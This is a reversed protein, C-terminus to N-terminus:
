KRILNTRMPTQSVLMMRCRVIRLLCWVVIFAKVVPISIRVRICPFRCEARIVSHNGPCFQFTVVDGPLANISNPSFVNQKSGVGTTHITIEGQTTTPTTSNEIGTEGKSEVTATLALLIAARLWRVRRNLMNIEERQDCFLLNVIDETTAIWSISLTDIVQKFRFFLSSRTRACPNLCGPICM